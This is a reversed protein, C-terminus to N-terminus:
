QYTASFALPREQVLYRRQIMGVRQSTMKFNLRFKAHKGGIDQNNRVVDELNRNNRKRKM